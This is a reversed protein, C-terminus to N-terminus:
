HEDVQGIGNENFRNATKGKHRKRHQSMLHLTSAADRVYTIPTKPEECNKNRKKKMKLHIRAWSSPTVLHMRTLTCVRTTKMTKRTNRGWVADLKVQIINDVCTNNETDPCITAQRSAFTIGQARMTYAYVPNTVGLNM